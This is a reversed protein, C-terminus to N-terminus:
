EDVEVRGWPIRDWLREHCYYMIMRLIHYGVTIYATQKWDNTVDHSILMLLSIGLIYWFATKAMSRPWEERFASM